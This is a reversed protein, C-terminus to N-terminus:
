LSAELPHAPSGPSPPSVADEAQIVGTQAEDHRPSGPPACAPEPGLTAQGLVLSLVSNPEFIGPALPFPFLVSDLAQCQKETVKLLNSVRQVEASPEYRKSAHM